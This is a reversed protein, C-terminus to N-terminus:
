GAGPTFHAVLDYADGPFVQRVFTVGAGMRWTWRKLCLCARGRDIRLGAATEADPNIASIQHRADTWAVHARLWASPSVSTFDVELAEPAAALNILRAEFAFPAGGALHRCALELM